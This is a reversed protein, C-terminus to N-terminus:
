FDNSAAPVPVLFQNQTSVKPGNSWRILPIPFEGDVFNLFGIQVGRHLKDTHNVLGVQVGKSTHALNILGIQVSKLEGAYTLMGIQPATKVGKSEDYFLALSVSASNNFLNVVGIHAGKSQDAYNLLGIGVGTTSKQINAAAIQLGKFTESQNIGLGLDFGRVDHNKAHFLSLRVGHVDEKTWPIEIPSYISFQLFNSGSRNPTPNSPTASLTAGGQNATVTANIVPLDQAILPTMTMLLAIVITKM